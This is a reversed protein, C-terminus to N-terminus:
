GLRMRPAPQLEQTETNKQLSKGLFDIEIKGNAKVGDAEPGKWNLGFRTHRASINIEEDAGRSASPQVYFSTDGFNTESSDRSMDLRFHGYFELGLTDLLSDVDKRLKTLFAPDAVAEATEPPEDPQPVAEQAQARALLLGVAPVIILTRSSRM